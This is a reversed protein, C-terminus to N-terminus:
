MWQVNECVISEHSKSARTTLSEVTASHEAHRKSVTPTAATM